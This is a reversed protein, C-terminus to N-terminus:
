RNAACIRQIIKPSPKSVLGQEFAIVKLETGFVDLLEGPRLLYDPNTPRGYQEHGLSFTEYLLVGSDDLCEILRALHPRYLYNCVVIAAFRHGKLPWVEQELDTQLLEIGASGQLDEVGTLDIDAALVKFGLQQLLRTHRGSGCALDLVEGGAKIEDAHSIVWDSAPPLNHSQKSM